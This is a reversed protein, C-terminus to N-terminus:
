NIRKAVVTSRFAESKVTPALLLYPLIKQIFHIRLIIIIERTIILYRVDDRCM